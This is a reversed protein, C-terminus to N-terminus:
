KFLNRFFNAIAAFFNAIAAFFGGGNGGASVTYNFTASVIIGNETYQVTAEKNEGAEDANFNVYKVKETVDATKGNSYTAVVQIGESSVAQGVKYELKKPLTVIEISTVVAPKVTFALYLVVTDEDVKVLKTANNFNITGMMNDEFKYGEEAQVEAKFVYYKDVAFTFAENTYTLGAMADATTPLTDAVGWAASVLKYGSGATANCAFNAAVGDAPVEVGSIQVTTIPKAPAVYEFPASQGSISGYTGGFKAQVAFTYSGTGYTKMTNALAKSTGNANTSVVYDAAGDKYLYVTYGNAGEVADWMAKGNEDWRLNTAVATADAAFVTVTMASLALVLVLLVSLVKTCKKM